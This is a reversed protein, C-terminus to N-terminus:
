LGVKSISMEEKRGFVRTWIYKPPFKCIETDRGERWLGGTQVHVSQLLQQPLGPSLMFGYDM